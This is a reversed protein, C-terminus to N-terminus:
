YFKLYISALIFIIVINTDSKRVLPFAPSLRLPIGQYSELGHPLLFAPLVSEM